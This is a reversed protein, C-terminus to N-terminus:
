GQDGAASDGRQDHARGDIRLVTAAAAPMRSDSPPPVGRDTTAIAAAAIPAVASAVVAPSAAVAAPAAIVPAPAPSAEAQSQIKRAQRQVVRRIPPVANGVVIRIAIVVDSLAPVVFVLSHTRRGTKLTLAPRRRRPRACRLQDRVGLVALALILLSLVLELAVLPGGALRSEVRRLRRGRRGGSITRVVHPCLRSTEFAAPIADLLRIAQPTARSLRGPSASVPM